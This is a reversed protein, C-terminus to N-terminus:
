YANFARFFNILSSNKLRKLPYKMFIKGYYIKGSNKLINLLFQFIFLFNPSVRKCVISYIVRQQIELNLLDNFIFLLLEDPLDEM